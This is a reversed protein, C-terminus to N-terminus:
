NEDDNDDDVVEDEFPPIEGALLRKCESDWDVPESLLTKLIAIDVEVARVEDELLDRGKRDVHRARRELAHAVDAITGGSSALLRRLEWILEDDEADIAPTSDPRPDSASEGPPEDRKDVVLRFEAAGTRYDDLLREIDARLRPDRIGALTRRIVRSTVCWRRVIGDLTNARTAVRNTNNSRDTSCM